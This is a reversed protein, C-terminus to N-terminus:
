AAPGANAPANVPYIVSHDPRVVAGTSLRAPELRGNGMIHLVTAGRAILHDAVIRRHCRWWVAEACMLACRVRGGESMLDDLAAEFESSLAYDAYNHFSRNTWWGNLDPPRSQTRGRLGGLAAVHEYRIQVSKLASELSDRNFHPYARSMPLKRIDALMGVQAEGLLEVFHELSRTSHGITLFPLM